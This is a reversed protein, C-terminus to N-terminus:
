FQYQLGYVTRRQPNVIDREGAFLDINQTPHIHFYGDVYGHRLDYARGEFGFINHTISGMVGLRSYLIGGGILGLAGVAMVMPSTFAIRKSKLPKHLAVDDYKLVASVECDCKGIQKIHKAQITVEAMRFAPQNEPRLTGTGAFARELGAKFKTAAHAIVM